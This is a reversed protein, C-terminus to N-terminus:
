QPALEIARKVHEIAQTLQGRQHAIIGLLHIATPEKPKSALLQKLLAEAEDLRGAGRHQEVLEYVQAVPMFQRASESAVSQDMTLSYRIRCGPERPAWVQS